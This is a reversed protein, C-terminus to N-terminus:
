LLWSLWGQSYLFSTMKDSTAISIVLAITAITLAAVSIGAQWRAASAADSAAHSAARAIENAARAVALHQRGVEREFGDARDLLDEQHTPRTM